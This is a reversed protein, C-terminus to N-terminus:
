SRRRSGGFGALYKKNTSLDVPGEMVGVFRALANLATGSRRTFREQLAERVLEGKSKRTARSERDLRRATEEDLCITLTHNM